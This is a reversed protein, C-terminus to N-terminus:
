LTSFVHTFPTKPLSVELFVVSSSSRSARLWRSSRTASLVASSSFAFASRSALVSLSKPLSM